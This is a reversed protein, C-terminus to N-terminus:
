KLLDFSFTQGDLNEKFAQKLKPKSNQLTSIAIYMHM